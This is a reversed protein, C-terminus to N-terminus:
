LVIGFHEFSEFLKLRICLSPLKTSITLVSYHGVYKVLDPSIQLNWSERKEAGMGAINLSFFPAFGFPTAALYVEFSYVRM